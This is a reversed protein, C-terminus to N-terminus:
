SIKVALGVASSRMNLRTSKIWATEIARYVVGPGLSLAKGLQFGCGRRSGPDFARIGWLTQLFILAGAVELSVLFACPPGDQPRYATLM